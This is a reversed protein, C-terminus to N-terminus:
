GGFCDTVAAAKEGDDGIWPEGAYGYGWESTTILVGGGVCDLYPNVSYPEGDADRCPLLMDEPTISEGKVFRDDCDELDDPHYTVGDGPLEFDESTYEDSALEDQGGSPATADSGDGTDSCGICAGLLSLVAIARAVAYGIQTRQLGVGGSPEGHEGIALM